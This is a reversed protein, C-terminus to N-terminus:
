GRRKLKLFEKKIEPLLSKGMVITARRGKNISAQYFPNFSNSNTIGTVNGQGVGKRRGTKHPRNKTKYNGRFILEAYSRAKWFRRSKGQGVPVDDGKIIVNVGPRFRSKSTVTKVSSRIYRVHEFKNSSPILRKTEDKLVNGGKRAVRRIINVQNTSQFHMQDLVKTMRRIGQVFVDAM